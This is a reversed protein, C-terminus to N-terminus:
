RPDNPIEGWTGPITAPFNNTLYDEIGDELKDKLEVSVNTWNVDILKSDAMRWHGSHLFYIVNETRKFFREYQTENITGDYLRELALARMEKWFILADDVHKQAWSQILEQNDPPTLDWTDIDIDYQNGNTDFAIGLNKRVRELQIVVLTNTNVLEPLVGGPTLDRITPM